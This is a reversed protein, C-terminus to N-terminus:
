LDLPPAYAIVAQVVDLPCHFMFALDEATEGDWYNVVLAEVPLRKMCKVVPEGGYFDPDIVVEPCGSWDIRHFAAVRPDDMATM